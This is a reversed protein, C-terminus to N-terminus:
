FAEMEKNIHGEVAHMNSNFLKGLLDINFKCLGSYANWVEAPPDEQFRSIEAKSFYAVSTMLPDIFDLNYKALGAFLDQAAILQHFFSDFNSGMKKLVTEM